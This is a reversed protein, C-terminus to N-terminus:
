LVFTKIPKIASGDAYEAVEGIAFFDGAQTQIRLRTGVPFATRIKAQYIECGSRFLREYFAPLRVAELTSFLSETPVLAQLRDETSTRSSCTRCKRSVTHGHPLTISTSVKATIVLVAEQFSRVEVCQTRHTNTHLYSSTQM